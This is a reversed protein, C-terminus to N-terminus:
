EALGTHWTQERYRFANSLLPRVKQSTGHGPGKNENSTQDSYMVGNGPYARGEQKIAKSDSISERELCVM